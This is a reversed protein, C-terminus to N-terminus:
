LANVAIHNSVSWLRECWTLHWLFTAAALMSLCMLLLPCETASNGPTRGIQSEGMPATSEPPGVEPVEIAVLLEESMTKLLSTKTM